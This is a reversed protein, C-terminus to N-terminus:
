KINFSITCQIFFNIM